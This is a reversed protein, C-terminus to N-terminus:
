KDTGHHEEQKKQKKRFEEGMKLYGEEWEKMNIRPWSHYARWSYGVINPLSMGANFGNM